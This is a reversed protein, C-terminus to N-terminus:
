AGHCGHAGGRRQGRWWGAPRQWGHQEARCTAGDYYSGSGGSGGGGSGGALVGEWAGAVSTSGRRGRGYKAQQKQYYSMSDEPPRAGTFAARDGTTTLSDHTVSRYTADSRNVRKTDLQRRWRRAEDGEAVEEEATAELGLVAALSPDTIADLVSGAADGALRRLSTDNDAIKANLSVLVEPLPTGARPPAAALRELVTRKRAELELREVALQRVATATSRTLSALVADIGRSSRAAARASLTHRPLALLADSSAADVSMMGRSMVTASDDMGSGGGGAGSGGGVVSGGRVSRRDM